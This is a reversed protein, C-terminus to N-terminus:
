LVQPYIVVWFDFWPIETALENGEAKYVNKHPHLICTRLITFLWPPLCAGEVPSPDM